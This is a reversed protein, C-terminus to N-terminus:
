KEMREIRTIKQIDDWFFDLGELLGELEIKLGSKLILFCTMKIKGPWINSCIHYVSFCISDSIYLIFM